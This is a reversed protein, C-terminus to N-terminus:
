RLLLIRRTKGKIQRKSHPQESEPQSYLIVFTLSEVKVWGRVRHARGREEETLNKHTEADLSFRISNFTGIGWGM